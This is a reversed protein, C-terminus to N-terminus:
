QDVVIVFKGSGFTNAKEIGDCGKIDVVVVVRPYRSCCARYCPVPSPAHKVLPRCLLTLVTHSLLPGLM